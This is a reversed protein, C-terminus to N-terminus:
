QRQWLAFDAYQVALEPLRPDGGGTFARYFTDLEELLLGISLGDAVIHHINIILIHEAEGLKFLSVRILPLRSLDFSAVSVESAFASLRNERQDGTLHNLKRVDFKIKLDPHILQLPEGDRFAFTTRLGEHRKVVANFSDELAMSDLPGKLRFGLPLSYASNGPTMQDIVWMQRQAFSVPASDLRPRKPIVRERNSTRKAGSLRQELLAKKEASLTPRDVM